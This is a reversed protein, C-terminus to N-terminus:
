PILVYISPDCMCPRHRSKASRQRDFRCRLHHCRSWSERNHVLINLHPLWIRRLRIISPGFTLPHRLCLFLIKLM